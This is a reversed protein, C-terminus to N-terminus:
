NLNLNKSLWNPRYFVDVADRCLTLDGGRGAEVLTWSIVHFLRMTIHSSQPIHLEEKNINSRPESQEM